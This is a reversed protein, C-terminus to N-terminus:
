KKGLRWLHGETRVILAGDLVAPSALSAEGVQNTALLQFRKDAKVVYGVGTENFFYLKGEAYVPSASFNGGLRESWHVKGTKADVCAAIGGDSVLYLEDGVVQMSATHPGGRGLEWAVHTDTVDGKAGAPRIAKVVPKDFSSSVFVLGHAFVPRPVVSYGEGYGVRWLERGSSADYAGVFGSGPSIVQTGGDVKVALPTSFSFPKKATTNRPTKWRIEGTAADLAVVFPDSAGDCSFVLKGDVLAPSGGTGHVPSYTVSNQKWLIKGDLDLAATGMHGFHVFVRDATVIPTPSALSNKRHMKTADAGPKFVEVDWVSKGDKADFCLARLTVVDGEGVATTLYIRGNAVAPSSWGRGAVPVRWNVNGTASWTVPVDKAASIGQGTPGRFEPWETEAAILPLALFALSLPFRM